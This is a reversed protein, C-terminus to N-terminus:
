RDENAVLQSLQTFSMSQVNEPTGGGANPGVGGSGGGPFPAYTPKLKLFAAAAQEPKDFHGDGVAIGTINGDDDTEIEAHRLFSHTAEDLDSVKHSQLAAMVQHRKIVDLRAKSATEAAAKAEDREKEAQAVRQEFQQMRKELQIRAKEAESKGKLEAEERISELQKKLEDVEGVKGKLDEYDAFKAELAKREKAIMANVDEQSFTKAPPKDGGGGGGGGEGGEGELLLLPESFIHAISPDRELAKVDLDLGPHSAARLIPDICPAVRGQPAHTQM